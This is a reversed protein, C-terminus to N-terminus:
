CGDFMTVRTSDPVCVESEDHRVMNMQDQAKRVDILAFLDDYAFPWFEDYAYPWFVYDIFDWYGFPWFLPGFWGIVIFPHHHRWYWGGNPHPWDKGALRGKFTSTALTRNTPSRKSLSAFTNNRLVAARGAGAVSRTVLNHGSGTVM